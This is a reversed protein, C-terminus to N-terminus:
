MNVVGTINGQSDFLFGKREIIYGGFSNKARYQVAVSYWDAGKEVRGWEIASFSDPDKLHSKLYNEAQRVSGDYYSNSVAWGSQGSNINNSSISNMAGYMIVVIFGCAIALSGKTAKAPPKPAPKVKGCHPCKPAGIAVLGGCAPCSSTTKELDNKADDKGFFLMYIFPSIILIPLGYYGGIRLVIYAVVLGIVWAALKGKWTWKGKLSEVFPKKIPTEQAEDKIPKEVRTRPERSKKFAEVNVGCEPCVGPKKIEFGKATHNCRPCVLLVKAMFVGCTGCDLNAGGEVTAGCKPCLM